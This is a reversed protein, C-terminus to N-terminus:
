EDITPQIHAELTAKTDTIYTQTIQVEALSKEYAEFTQQAQTQLILAVTTQQAVAIVTRTGDLHFGNLDSYATASGLLYGLALTVFLLIVALLLYLQLRKQQVSKAKRM